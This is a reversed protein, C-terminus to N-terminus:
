RVLVMKKVDRYEGAHIAYLYVGSALASADFAARYEGAGLMGDVLTGVERGLVDYVKLTVRRTASGSGQVTFRIATEGNFPNPYNQLLAFAQPVGDAVRDVSVRISDSGGFQYYRAAFEQLYQMALAGDEIFLTNEGNSNEAANSWNHSGTVVLPHSAPFGADIVAYKHHLLGSGIKLRIDTGQAVLSAYQSGTDVGNDMVGRIVCGSSKKALLTAAVDSRTFTLLAFNVSYDASGLADIIRATANDSPSFYCAIQRGGIVFRHPTNDTKRPGFRSAAASPVETTSGWMENFELTYSGALAPDQIEIANQFDDYTGPETPNWSGTWVWVSEPAGGYADIVVFKNHMLGAGANAPDFTDTILPVGASVLSNLPSTNRNDQECIVRVRIGRQRAAILAQAIDTGPGPTGSLSYFAADVSRRAAAIRAALLSVLNQSGSAPAGPDLSTYVSKNFYAHIAGTSQLPSATSVVLDGAVSTDGAGASFAQVHYMTAAELGTVPVGHSTRLITDPALVGLEYSKTKGYRLGSTGPLGTTWVIRLSSPTIDTEMPVSSIGPGTVMIDGTFRPMLQYGGIYPSSTMYQGVVAIVDCASAPIPAGVLTTSADIRIETSDMGAVLPYNTNAAWAGGGGVHVGNLRVLRGEYAEVGGLGDHRIDAPTVVLPEVANGSSALLHLQPNVIETLGAYPQVLGSVVVEDGIAVATSFSSGFVAMGGTNDQIYSPGGFENAVTVIGRVTLLRNNLLPVGSADNAKVASIPLPVSYVFVSPQTSLAFLSDPHTGTRTFFTFRATSDAPTVSRVTVLMSDAGGVVMGEVLVTDGLVSVAPSGSGTCTVDTPQHSWNWTSPVTFRVAALVYPSEGYVSITVDQQTGGSLTSPFIRVYGRGASGGGISADTEQGATVFWPGTFVQDRSGNDAITVLSDVYGAPVAIKLGGSGYGYGEAIGNEETRYSGVVTGGAYALVGKNVAPSSPRMIWGGTGTSQMDLITFSRSPSTLNTSTAGVKAARVSATAGLSANHKAYIWGSWNGAADINVVPQNSTGYTTTNSWVAGTWMYENNTSSYIKVYAQANAAATWGQIRVFVAYPTGVTGTGGAGAIASPAYVATLSTQSLAPAAHLALLIVSSLCAIYHRM